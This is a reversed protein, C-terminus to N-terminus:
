DDDGGEQDQGSTGLAELLDGYLQPGWTEIAEMVDAYENAHRRMMAVATREAERPNQKVGMFDGRSKGHAKLNRIAPDAEKDPAMRHETWNCASRGPVALPTLWAQRYILLLKQLIESASQADIAPLVKAEKLGVFHTTCRLGGANALLHAAWGALLPHIRYVGSKSLAAPRMVVHLVEAHDNRWWGTGGVTGMVGFPSPLGADDPAHWQTTQEPMPQWTSGDLISEQRDRLAKVQSNLQKLPQQAMLGLPLQGSGRAMAVHTDPYALAAEVLQYMELQGLHFPEADPLEEEPTHIVMGLRHKYYVDIPQRLMATLETLRVCVPPEAQPGLGHESAKTGGGSDADRWGRAQAWDTAYTQWVSDPQEFYQRSFSQMPADLVEIPQTHAANLHDILQGVLVSAYLESQDTIQWGQWSIYVSERACLLAELFLFRDDERRSRDGPRRMGPSRMLDFDTVPQRRPYQGDNMGLLCVRKFPISRMPMLTAFQVGGSLFRNGSGSDSLCSMWHKRVVELPVEASLRGIQCSALWQKLPATLALVARLEAETQVVLVDNVIANLDRVWHAPPRPASVMHLVRDLTRLSACLATLAAESMPRDLHAPWVGQWDAGAMPGQAQALLLRELGFLWTNPTAEDVNLAVGTSVRHEGDLGWRVGVARLAERVEQLEEVPFACARAYAPVELWSLWDDLTVRASPGQLLAEIITAMPHDKASQDAVSYPVRRPDDAAFRGWVAHILAAFRSMDPVMVIIDRPCLDPDAELWGLIRDHLLEVERVASHSRVLVVSDDADAVPYKDETAPLPNLNLIDSQLRQLRTAQLTRDESVPDEFFDIRGLLHKYRGVDDHVDLLHLYDRGQQGWAALLPQARTHWELADASLAPTGPKPAQRTHTAAQLWQRESVVDGWYYKCPNLVFVMVQSVRGLAALAEISQMPMASVGFVLIRKPLGGPAASNMQRMFAEHVEARSPPLALDLDSDAAVDTLLAQWLRAQWLENAPLDQPQGLANSLSATGAAWDRLWDARYNQYGDLLQALQQSLQHLRGDDVPKAGQRVYSRLPEYVGEADSQLCEPILRMLRWVLHERDLPMHQPVRDPGLVLRYALWLMEAPFVMKTAACIGLGRADALGQELWQKMGNSQVVVWEPNLGELPYNRVHGILLQRLDELRNSHLVMFGTPWDATPAPSQPTPAPHAM